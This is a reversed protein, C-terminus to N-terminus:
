STDMQLTTRILAGLRKGIISMDFAEAHVRGAEGMEVRLRSNEILRSTKDIWERRNAALFGTVGDKLHEVNTGVPSAVVPLGAASYELVKYSCKGRTFRNDPLPALGIDSTALDIARTQESWLRKEVRINKLELFKECVIRLLVNDFRAGIEEIAPEIEKLYGLTSRSGIWVLRIMGDAEARCDPRYDSVKLGLPLIEVNSNYPKAHEALYSSGVLVMDAIQVSRRFPIFHSRSYREPHRDSYMVADDFNYIIKKSYTRLCLANFANLGKKHLFVGDFDTARKFLKWRGAFTPPLPCVEGDIGNSRLTDLYVGIRQKFSPGNPNNTLILLNM